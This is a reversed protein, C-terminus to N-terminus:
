TRFAAMGETSAAFATSPPPQRTPAAMVVVARPRIDAASLPHNRLAPGHHNSGVDEGEAVQIM